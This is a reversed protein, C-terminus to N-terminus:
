ASSFIARGSLNSSGVKQNTALRAIDHQDPYRAPISLRHDIRQDLLGALQWPLEVLGQGPIPTLLQRIVPAEAQRRVDLHVETIGLTGPLPTRIFLDIAQQPLIEGLHHIQGADMLVM